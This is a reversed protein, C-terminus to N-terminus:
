SATFTIVPQDFAPRSYPLPLDYEISTPHSLSLRWNLRDKSSVFISPHGRTAPRGSWQPRVLLGCEAAMYWVDTRIVRLWWYSSPLNCLPRSQECCLCPAAERQTIKSGRDTTWCTEWEGDAPADIYMYTLVLFWWGKEEGGRENEMEKGKREQKRERRGKM